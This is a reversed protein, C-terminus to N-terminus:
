EGDQDTTDVFEGEGRALGRLPQTYTVFSFPPCAEINLVPLHTHTTTM